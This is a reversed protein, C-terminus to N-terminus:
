ETEWKRKRDPQFVDKRKLLGELYMAREMRDLSIWTGTDLYYKLRIYFVDSRPIHINPLRDQNNSKRFIRYFDDLITEPFKEILM